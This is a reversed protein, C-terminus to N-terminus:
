DAIESWPVTILHERDLPSQPRRTGGLKYTAVHVVIEKPPPDPIAGAKEWVKAFEGLMQRMTDPWALTYVMDGVIEGIRTRGGYTFTVLKM